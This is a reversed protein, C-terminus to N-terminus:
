AEENIGELFEVAYAAYMLASVRLCDEDIDFRSDHHAVCTDPMEPDCSGAFCYVGPVRLIFEAMDDGGMEPARPIVNESGFLRSATSKAEKVSVADNILPSANDKWEFSVTGGYIAATQEALKEIREKTASRIEPTYARVTGELFGEQAVINYADGANIKGVGILVVDMPNTMRTTVSQLGILIQASIYAADVGKEPSAVHAGHGHVNIRFWDVSANQPGEQICIKGAPYGSSLHIGFTRDAGDVYGED